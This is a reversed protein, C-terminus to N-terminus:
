NMARSGIPHLGVGAVDVVWAAVGVVVGALTPTGM